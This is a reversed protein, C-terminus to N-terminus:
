KEAEKLGCKVFYYGKKTKIINEPLGQFLYQCLVEQRGRNKKCYYVIGEKTKEKGKSFCIGLKYQLFSM